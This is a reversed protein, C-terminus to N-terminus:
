GRGGAAAAALFAEVREVYERPHSLQPVHGADPFTQRKAQPLAAAVLDLVAAYLPPSRGGGTLLLPGRFASLAPLEVRLSDPDDIEALFTPASRVFAARASAPLREWSGAGLGIEDVFTRAAEELRGARLHAETRANAAEFERVAAALPGRRDVIRMLPPEHAVLSRVLAPHRAAARLAISAGYSHAALHVPGLGLAEVLAALDAVHDHVTAPRAAASRGHGRRDYAVVAHRRSLAPVVADWDRHHGWSGHVLVLPEGAGHRRHFLAVGNVPVIM